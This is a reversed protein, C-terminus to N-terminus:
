GNFMVNTKGSNVKLSKTEFAEKWKLFKNRLGDIADNLLVLDDTILLESFVAKSTLETVVDIVIGFLFHSLVSGDGKKM